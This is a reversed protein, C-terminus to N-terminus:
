RSQIIGFYFEYGRTVVRGGDVRRFFFFDEESFFKGLRSIPIKSNSM